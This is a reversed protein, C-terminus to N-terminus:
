RWPMAQLLSGGQVWSGARTGTVLLLLVSAPDIECSFFQEKTGTRSTSVVVFYHDFCWKFVSTNDLETSVPVM